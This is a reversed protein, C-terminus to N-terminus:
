SPRGGHVRIFEEVVHIRKEFDECGKECRKITREVVRDEDHPWVGEDNTEEGQVPAFSYQFSLGNM